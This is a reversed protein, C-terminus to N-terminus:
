IMLDEFYKKVLENDVKQSDSIRKPPLIDKRLKSVDLQEIDSEYEYYIHKTSGYYISKKIQYLIEKENNVVDQKTIQTISKGCCKELLEQIMEQLTERYFKSLRRVKLRYNVYRNLALVVNSTLVPISKIVGFCQKIAQNSYNNKTNRKIMTLEFSM